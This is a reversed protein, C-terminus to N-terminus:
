PQKSVVEEIVNPDRSKLHVFRQFYDKLPEAQSQKCQFLDSATLSESKFRHFNSLIKDRLNEWSYINKPKLMSYWNLVDEETTIIFSKALVTDDGGASAIVAEFSMIFQMPNTKGNYSLPKYNQPWSM